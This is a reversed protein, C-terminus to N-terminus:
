CILSGIEEGLLIKRLNGKKMGNYVILPIKTEKLLSFTTEDVIKLGKKIAEEYTIKRYFKANKNKVPDDSYVREVKTEKLIIEVSLEWGRLTYATDTLFYPNGTSGTLFVTKRKEMSEKAKKANYHEVIPMCSFSSFVWLSIKKLYDEIILRM